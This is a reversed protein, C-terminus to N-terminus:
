IFYIVFCYWKHVIALNFLRLYFLFYFQIFLIYLQVENKYEM